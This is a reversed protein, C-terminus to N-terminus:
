TFWGLGAATTGLWLAVKGVWIGIDKVNEATTKAKKLIEVTKKIKETISNKDPEQKGLEGKVDQIQDAIQQKHEQEIELESVKGGIADIIKLVDEASSNQNLVMDGAVNYIDGGAHQEGISFVNKDNM